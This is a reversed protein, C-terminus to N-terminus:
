LLCTKAALEEILVRENESYDVPLEILNVGKRGICDKLIPLFDETKEVRVGYAGYSEAYKVFDPNGYDLGWNPFGMGAQKWKIMGYANDRLVLVTLDLGLRVATEMEQSNMMFGGDGCVALVPVNPEVMKAGMASPLGAGMTALANDLLLTNSEHVPYNRAFWVKYIGNDLTVIGDSPMAERVDAVFRQPIVPFTSVGDKEHIHELADTRVREAFAFGCDHRSGVREGLRKVSEAIAGVVELQPFYVPDVEAPLYNLHIVEKGGHEMFFPPKEVVDHGINIILDARDIACHVYDGTSLAAVGLFREYRADVVGAGMQTSFAYLGTTEMFARIADRACKRNAGAGILVLPFKAAKIKEAAADLVSDEATAYKRESRHFVQTEEAEMAAVDEPLELYIAGPRETAALRFAERVASPISNGHAIQRSLKTLPKMLGVVDVIQFRGQKSHYIPKQGSIMIMPMAGLQAYAAGTVFNTAGPGLTSLCVGPRGTLRGYTAAMFAAGQEHRTLILKITKSHRLSELFDLNEEGPVGFIYKVGENELAKIFLDSTKM